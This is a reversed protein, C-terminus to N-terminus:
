SQSRQVDTATPQQADIEAFAAQAAKFASNAAPVSCYVATQLLIEKIEERTLGNRLAARVHMALEEFHGHAVLATLTVASRMRRDLGPRTWISGWAYRTIFDQFDATFGDKGANARDVHEDGLVERRVAMGADYVPDGAAQEPLFFERLLAAVAAPDEAPVQHATGPIEVSRGQRVGRAVEDAVALPTVTDQEGAIALVPVSIDNLRARVDFEALAECCLAYSNSDTDQLCRLLRGSVVPDKDMFGPAFWRQSSGSILIPTGQRRVTEARERWAEPEGIRAGSCLVAIAAFEDPADVGLQLGVAGGLSVGAYFVPRPPQGENRGRLKELTARVGRALEAMTFPEEAAPSVGHGPLDWAVVEFDAALLGAAAEWLVSGATGLSPGLLLLPRHPGDPTEPSNLRVANIGPVTM